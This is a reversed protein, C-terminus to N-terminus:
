HLFFFFPVPHSKANLSSNFGLVPWTDDGPCLESAFEESEHQDLPLDFDKDIMIRNWIADSHSTTAKVTRSHAAWTPLGHYRASQEQEKTASVEAPQTSQSHGMMEITTVMLM